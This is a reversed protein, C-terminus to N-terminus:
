FMYVSPTCPLSLIMPDTPDWPEGFEELMCPVCLPEAISNASGVGRFESFIEASFKKLFVGLKFLWFPPLLPADELVEDETQLTGENGFAPLSLDIRFESKGGIFM